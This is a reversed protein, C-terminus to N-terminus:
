LEPHLEFDTHRRGRASRREVMAPEHLAGALRRYPNRRVEHRRDDHHEYACTCHGARCGPLPLAPAEVSLFRLGELRPALACCAAGPRITVCHYPHHDEAVATAPPGAAPVPERRRLFLFGLVGVAAAFAVLMAAGDM